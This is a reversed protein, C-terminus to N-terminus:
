ENEVGEYMDNWAHCCISCRAEVSSGDNYICTPCKCEGQPRESLVKKDIFDEGVERAIKNTFDETIMDIPSKYMVNYRM